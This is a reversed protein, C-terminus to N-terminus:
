RTEKKYQELVNKKVSEDLNFFDFNFYILIGYHNLKFNEKTLAWKIFNDKDKM